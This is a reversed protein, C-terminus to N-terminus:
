LSPSSLSETKVVVPKKTITMSITMGTCSICSCLVRVDVYEICIYAHACFSFYWFYRFCDSFRPTVWDQLFLFSDTTPIIQPFILKLSSTFSPHHSLLFSWSTSSVSAFFFSFPWFHSLTSPTFPSPPELSLCISFLSWNNTSFIIYLTAWFM